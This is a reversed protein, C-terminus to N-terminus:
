QLRRYAASVAAFRRALERLEEHSAHPHADPHLARALRRYASKIAEADSGAPLELLLLAEDRLLTREVALAGIQELFALLPWARAPPCLAAAVIAELTRPQDLFAVLPREDLGICSSHPRHTLQLRAGAARTAFGDGSAGVVNRIVAAPHFPGMGRRTGTLKPDFTWDADDRKLIVRLADEGRAPSKGVYSEIPLLDVAHVWGRFFEVRAPSVRQARLQVLATGSALDHSLSWVLKAANM